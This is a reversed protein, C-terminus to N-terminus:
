FKRRIEQNEIGNSKNQYWDIVLIKCEPGSKSVKERPYM